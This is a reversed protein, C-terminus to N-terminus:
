GVRLSNRSPHLQINFTIKTLLYLDWRDLYALDLHTGQRKLVNLLDNWQRESKYREM